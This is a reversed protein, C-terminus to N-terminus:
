FGLKQLEGQLFAEIDPANDLSRCRDAIAECDALTVSRCVRKIEPISSPPVSLERLGMGLLLM